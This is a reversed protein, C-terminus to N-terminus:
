PQAPIISTSRRTVWCAQATGTGTGALQVLSVQAGTNPLLTHSNAVINVGLKKIAPLFIATKGNHTITIGGPESGTATGKITLTYPTGNDCTVSGYNLYELGLSGATYTPTTFRGLQAGVQAWTQNATYTGLNVTAGTVSCQSAVDFTAAGTATATGAQAVCPLAVIAAASLALKLINNRMEQDQSSLWM